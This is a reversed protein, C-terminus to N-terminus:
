VPVDEPNFAPADRTPDGAPVTEDDYEVAVSHAMGNKAKVKGKYTIWLYTGDKVNRLINDIATFGWFSYPGENTELTHIASLKPTNDPHKHGTDTYRVGGYTGEFTKGIEETIKFVDGSLPRRAM